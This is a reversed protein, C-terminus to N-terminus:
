GGVRMALREHFNFGYLSLRAGFTNPRTQVDLLGKPLFTNAAVERRVYKSRDKALTDLLSIPTSPNAAVKSRVYQTKDKALTELLSTSTSPNAAVKGRRQMM